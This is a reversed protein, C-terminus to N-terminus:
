YLGRGYHQALIVSISPNCFHRLFEQTRFIPFVYGIKEIQPWILCDFSRDVFSCEGEGIITPMKWVRHISAASSTVTASTFFVHLSDSHVVHTKGFQWCWIALVIHSWGRVFMSNKKMPEFCWKIVHKAHELPHPKKNPLFFRSNGHHQECIGFMYVISLSFCVCV